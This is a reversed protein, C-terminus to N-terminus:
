RLGTDFQEMEDLFELLRIRAREEEAANKGSEIIKNFMALHAEIMRRSEGHTEEFLREGRSILYKNEDKEQPSIKLRSLEKLRSAIEKEDFNSKTIILKNLKKGNNKCEVDVDLIGNIDYTFRVEIVAEGVPLRPVKMKLEGLKINNKVYYSEGQYIKLIIVEQRDSITTYFEKRSTPLSANRDIIPSMIDHNLKADWPDDGLIGVGLTFPCIDVLVTDKIEEGRQKIGSVLGAGIAVAMDPETDKLPEKRTLHTILKQIVPMKTSGGVLIIEDINDISMEADRLAKNIVERIKKLLDTSLNLLTKEDLIYSYIKGKYDYMLAASQKFAPVIKQEELEDNDYKYIINADENSLAIKCEEALKRVTAKENKTLKGALNPNAKYFANEIVANFDDGGLHNNGSVALIDVVNDFIDVISVDLTGGGLDFVLFTGDGDVMKHYALAASSPENIIREATIGALKGANKTATRQDNNFYAPVSIIAETVEEELYREASEVLSRIVLASLDEPFFSKKGLKFEKNTGMYQKFSSITQDPHSILRQKAIKGVLITGDDDIGVVSPTFYEGFSNPILESKGDRWVAALSNTTGLDIGIVAM